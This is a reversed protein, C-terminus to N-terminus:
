PDIPFMEIEGECYKIRCAYVDRTYRNECAQLAHKYNSYAVWISAAIGILFGVGCGILIAKIAAISIGGGSKLAGVVCGILTGVGKEIGLNNVDREFDNQATARCFIRENHATDLCDAYGEPDKICNYFAAEDPPVFRWDLVCLANTRPMENNPDDFSTTLAVFEVVGDIKGLIVSASANVQLLDVVEDPDLDYNNWDQYLLCSTVTFEFATAERQAQITLDPDAGLVEQDTLLFMDECIDYSIWGLWDYLASQRGQLYGLEIPLSCAPEPLDAKLETPLWLLNFVLVIMACRVCRVNM